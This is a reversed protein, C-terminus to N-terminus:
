VRPTHIFGRTCQGRDNWWPTRYTECSHLTTRTRHHLSTRPDQRSEWRRPVSWWRTTDRKSMHHSITAQSLTLPYVWACYSPRHPHSYQHMCALLREVSGNTPKVRPKMGSTWSVSCQHCNCIHIHHMSLVHETTDTRAFSTTISCVNALMWLHKQGM